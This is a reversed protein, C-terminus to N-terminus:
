VIPNQNDQDNQDSQDSQDSQDNQDSRDYYLKACVIIATQIFIISTQMIIPWKVILIGYFLNTLAACIGLILFGMSIDGTSKSKFIKIIQPCMKIISLFGGTFGIINIIIDNM